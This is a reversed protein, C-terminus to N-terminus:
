KKTKHWNMGGVLSSHNEQSNMIFDRDITEAGKYVNQPAATKRLEIACGVANGKAKGTGAIWLGAHNMRDVKVAKAVDPSAKAPSENSLM